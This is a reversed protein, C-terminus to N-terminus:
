NLDYNIIEAIEYAFDRNDELWYLRRILYNKIIPLEEVSFENQKIMDCMTRMLECDKKEDSLLETYDTKEHKRMIKLANIDNEEAKKDEEVQKKYVSEVSADLETSDNASSNIIAFTALGSFIALTCLM